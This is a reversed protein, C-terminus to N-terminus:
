REVFNGMLTIKRIPCDNVSDGNEWNLYVRIDETPQLNITRFVFRTEGEGSVTLVNSETKEQDGLLRIECKANEGLSKTAVIVTHTRGLRRGDTTDILISKWKSNTSFGSFRAIRHNSVGDSSSVIPVGFPSAIAGVYEYGGDALPSIQIPLQEVPAGCTYIDQGSIFLITNKYLAKQRHNPLTGSFYRLPKISRGSLWGISYSDSSKDQYAVYLNGNLVYLFGIRQDGVGAEDSLINSMASGDYMYIQSKKGEGSNVAIWWMNASFVVDVVESGEGFDLKQTDLVGLGQVYAGLYRGNGFVLVDEKVAAPHPAKELPQDSTSGWDEDIEETDLPMAAIDGESEKNYFVFLNEKLRIVSEGEVMGNITQPWSPDGGSIVDTPSLKFLKSTGVAYTTSADVPKDLIYRILENVVGEQNGNTLDQLAPSQTIFGPNSIIDAKMEGAQGRNGIYTKSDIHALPSVGEYFQQLTIEFQNDM